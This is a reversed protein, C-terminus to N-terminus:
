GRDPTLCAACRVPGTFARGCRPLSCTDRMLRWAEPSVTARIKGLRAMDINLKASRDAFYEVTVIPREADPGEIEDLKNCLETVVDPGALAMAERTRARMADPTQDALERYAASWRARESDTVPPTGDRDFRFVRGKSARRRDRRNM